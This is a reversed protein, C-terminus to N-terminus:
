NMLSKKRSKETESEYFSHELFWRKPKAYEKSKNIVFSIFKLLDKDMEM